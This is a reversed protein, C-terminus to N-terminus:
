TDLLWDKVHLVSPKLQGILDPLFTCLFFWNTIGKSEYRKPFKTVVFALKLGAFYDLVALRFIASYCAVCCVMLFNSWELGSKNGVNLYQDLGTSPDM